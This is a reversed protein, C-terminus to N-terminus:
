SLAEWYVQEISRVLRPVDFEGLIRRRGADGLRRATEPHDALFTLARALAAADGSAVLYGTEGELVLERNGGGASCVVPLACSMYEMIANSCGERHLGENSMLVGIDAERVLPLVELGPDVFTVVGRTQMEGAEAVLRPKEPGDGLLLIRWRGPRERDLRRAAAILASFDKHAVMRGTMVVTHPGAEPAGQEPRADAVGLREPDFANYVVRGKRPGVGWAELGARSNAVVIASVAQSIRRQRSGRPRVIGNRITADVIPIGLPRCLPLAALTSMWDWSHVVDPRWGYLLRWLQAAPRVDFRATRPSVDVRHGDAAIADAFPGGAMVWVRREWQPPLYKMILALQREAGGTPLAEKLMLLRVGSV